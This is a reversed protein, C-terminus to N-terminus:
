YIQLLQVSSFKSASIVIAGPAGLRRILPLTTDGETTAPIAKLLYTSPTGSYLCSCSNFLFFTSTLRAFM